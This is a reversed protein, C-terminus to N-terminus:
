KKNIKQLFKELLYIMKEEIDVYKHEKEDLYTFMLIYTDDINQYLTHKQQRYSERILRKIRNRDVAKKLKRKPVSFGAQIPFGTGHEIKLYVIRLPFVSLSSGKDFLQEILKRSKLKEEKKFTFRM